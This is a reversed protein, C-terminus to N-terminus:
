PAASRPRSRGRATAVGPWAPSSRTRPRHAAARRSRACARRARLRRDRRLVSGRAKLRLGSRWRAAMTAAPGAALRSSATSSYAAACQIPMSSGFATSRGASRKAAEGLPGAQAGAVPHAGIRGIADFPLVQARQGLQAPLDRLRHHSALAQVQHHGVAVAAALAPDPEIEVRQRRALDIGLQHLADADAAREAFRHEALHARAPRRGLGPQAGAVADDADVALRDGIRRPTRSSIRALPLLPTALGIRQRTCRPM